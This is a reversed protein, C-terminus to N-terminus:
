TPRLKIPRLQAARAHCFYIWFISQGFKLAHRCHLWSQRSRTTRRMRSLHTTNLFPLRYHHHSQPSSHIAETDSPDHTECVTGTAGLRPQVPSVGEFGMLATRRYGTGTMRGLSPHSRVGRALPDPRRRPTPRLAEVSSPRPSADRRKLLPNNASTRSPAPAAAQAFTALWASRPNSARTIGQCAVSSETASPLTSPSHLKM